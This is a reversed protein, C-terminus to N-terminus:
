EATITKVAADFWPKIEDNWMFVKVKSANDIKQVNVVVDKYYTAHPYLEIVETNGNDDEKTGVSLLNGAEDYYAAYFVIKEIEDTGNTLNLPVSVNDANTTIEGNFAHAAPKPEVAAEQAQYAVVLNDVTAVTESSRFNIKALSNALEYKYHAKSGEVQEDYITSGIYYKGDTVKAYLPCGPEDIVKAGDANTITLNYASKNPVVELKFHYDGAPLNQSLIRGIGRKDAQNADNHNGVIVSHATLVGNLDSGKTIMPAASGQNTAGENSPLLDCWYEGTMSLTADYDITVTGDTIEKPLVYGVTEVSDNVNDKHTISMQDYRYVPAEETGENVPTSYTANSIKKWLGNQGYADKWTEDGTKDIITYDTPFNDVSEFIYRDISYTLDKKAQVVIFHLSGVGETKFLDADRLTLGEEKAIIAGNQRLVIDLTGADTDIYEDLDVYSNTDYTQTAMISDNDIVGTNRGPVFIKNEAPNFQVSVLKKSTASRVNLRIKGSGAVKIRMGFHLKGKAAGEMTSGIAPVFASENAGATDHNCVYTLAGNEIKYVDDQSGNKNYDFRTALLGRKKSIGAEFGTFNFDDGALVKMDATSDLKKVSATKVTIGDHNNLTRTNIRFYGLGNTSIDTGLDGSTVEHWQNSEFKTGQMYQAIVKGDQKVIIKSNGTDLKLWAFIEVDKSRDYSGMLYDQSGSNASKATSNPIYINGNEWLNVLARRTLTSSDKQLQAVSGTVEIMVRAYNPSVVTHFEYIGTTPNDGPVIKRAIGDKITTIKIGDATKELKGSPAGYATTGDAIGVNFWDTASPAETDTDKLQRGNIASVDAESLVAFDTSWVDTAAASAITIMSFCSSILAACLMIAGIKNQVKKM